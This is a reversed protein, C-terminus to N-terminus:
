AEEQAIRYLNSYGRGQKEAKLREVVGMNCLKALARRITKVSIPQSIDKHIEAVTLVAWEFKFSALVARQLETLAQNIQHSSPPTM